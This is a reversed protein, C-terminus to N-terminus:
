ISRYPTVRASKELDTTWPKKTIGSKGITETLSKMKETRRESRYVDDLTSRTGEITSSMTSEKLTFAMRLVEIEESRMDSVKGDLRALAMATEMFVRHTAPDTKIDFPLDHPHFYCYAGNDAWRVEGATKGIFDKEEMIM